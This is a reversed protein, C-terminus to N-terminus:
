DLYEAEEPVEGRKVQVLGTMKFSGVSLLKRWSAMGSAGPRDGLGEGHKGGVHGKCM